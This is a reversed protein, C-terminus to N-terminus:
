AIEPHKAKMKARAASHDMNFSGSAHHIRYLFLAKGHHYGKLGAKFARYYFDYDAYDQKPDWGGITDWVSKKILCTIFPAPSQKFSNEHWPAAPQINSEAGFREMDTYVIDANM